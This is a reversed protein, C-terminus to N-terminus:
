LSVLFSSCFYNTNCTFLEVIILKFTVNYKRSQGLSNSFIDFFHYVFPRSVLKSTLLENDTFNFVIFFILIKKNIYQLRVFNLYIFSFGIFCM